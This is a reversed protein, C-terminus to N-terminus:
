EVKEVLCPSFSLCEKKVSDSLHCAPSGAGGGVLAKRTWKSHQGSHLSKMCGSKPSLPHSCVILFQPRETGVSVKKLKDRPHVTLALISTAAALVLLQQSQPWYDLGHPWKATRLVTAKRRHFSSTFSRKWFKIKSGKLRSLYMSGPDMIIRSSFLFMDFVFFLILNRDLSVIDKIIKKSTTRACPVEGLVTYCFCFLVFCCLRFIFIILFKWVPLLQARCIGCGSLAWECLLLM